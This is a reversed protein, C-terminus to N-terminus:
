GGVHLAQREGSAAAREIEDLMRHRRLAHEFDPAIHTGHILDALIDAYAYTVAYAYNIADSKETHRGAIAPAREYQTPVPLATLATDDGRAGHITMQGYQLHGTNGTIVLDGDTGNIEWHLNTARSIGGRFHASAVAGDGLVATVAIQDEATMPALQGTDAHRVIPRRGAMTATVETLEGLVMTLADIAHAFPISLMTAGNNRDLMYAESPGYVPGWMEGSAILSTSLVRGVYGEDILDALYRLPPASRGQLGVFTRLRKAEAHAAMEEAEAVGTALPWECLVMKGASLAASVIERHLPAKVAVVVLQVENRAVLEETSAFALPVQYKEGAARASEESSASLARLEFGELAALAPVHALGAWGRTAGLGVIGVGIPLPVSHASPM